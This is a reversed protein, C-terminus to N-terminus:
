SRQETQRLAAVAQLVAATVGIIMTSSVESAYGANTIATTLAAVASAQRGNGTQDPSADATTIVLTVMSENNAEGIATSDIWGEYVIAAAVGAALEADTPNWRFETM